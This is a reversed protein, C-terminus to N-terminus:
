AIEQVRLQEVGSRCLRFPGLGSVEYVRFGLVEPRISGLCQVQFSRFGM